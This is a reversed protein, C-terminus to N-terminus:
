TLKLWLGFDDVSMPKAYLYGQGYNCDLDILIQKQTETEIGECVVELDLNHCLTIIGQLFKINKPHSNLPKVFAKDIKIQHVPFTRLRALSSYGTGFDDIAIKVGLDKIKSLINTIQSNNNHAIVTETVELRLNSPSLNNEPLIKIIENLLNGAEFQKGAVNVNITIDPSVLKQKQWLQLQHCATKLVWNGLALILRSPEALILFKSPSLFGLEPHQWRVLSEISYLKGTKLDIIPQYFLTLKSEEIAKKLENELKLKKIFNEYMESGFIQYSGKGKNKVQYMAIDVDRFLDSATAYFNNGTLHNSIVIGISASTFFEQNYVYFPFSIETQIKKAVTVADEVTDISTLLIAFEDGGLRAIVDQDTVCKQLQCSINILFQDGVLHGLSDNITKFDDIDILLLAFVYDPNKHIEQLLTELYGMFYARNWLKTLFDTNAAEWLQNEAEKRLTINQCVSIFYKPNKQNDRIVTIATEFWKINGNKDICRKELPQPPFVKYEIVEDFYEQTLSIDEPHTIDFCSKTLLEKESYGLLHCLTQNVIKFKYDSTSVCIGVAVQNFIGNLLEERQQIKIAMEGLVKGLIIREDDFFSLVLEKDLSINMQYNGEGIAKAYNQLTKFRITLLTSLGYIIALFIPYSLGFSLLIQQKIQAQIEKIERTEMDAGIAALINGSKDRIPAYFTIWEGWKDQYFDRFEVVGNTLTNIHHQTAMATELFKASKSSDINMWVDVLYIIRKGKNEHSQPSNDKMFSYLFIQPNIEHRRELWQLQNQYRPDDSSGQSNPKGEQSLAMLEEVNIQQASTIAIRQLDEKLRQLTKETTFRYFWFSMGGFFLTFILSFSFLIKTRLSVFKKM